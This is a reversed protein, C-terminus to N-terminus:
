TVALALRAALLLSATGFVDGATTVAPGVVDDPNLGRRYGVLVVVIVTASLALGALIGGALAVVILTVVPAVARGLGTLVGYTFLAAAVSAVTGNVLAAAVARLIRGDPAFVPPIVGQHLGTSLRSGLSGYVSGRIALFAPVMVLLGQVAALEAEMGGLITGAVLGGLASVGVTPM